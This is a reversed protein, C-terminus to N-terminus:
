PGSRSLALVLTGTDCVLWKERSLDIKWWRSPRRRPVTCFLWYFYRDWHRAKSGKDSNYVEYAWVLRSGFAHSGVHRGIQFDLRALIKKSWFDLKAWQNRVRLAETIWGRVQRRHVANRLELKCAHLNTAARAETRRNTIRYCPASRNKLPDGIGGSRAAICDENNRFHSLM